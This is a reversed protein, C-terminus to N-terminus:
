GVKEHYWSTVEIGWQWMRWGQSVMGAHTGKCVQESFRKRSSVGLFPMEPGVSVRVEMEPSKRSSSCNVNGGATCSIRLEATRGSNM